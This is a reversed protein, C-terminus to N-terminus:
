PLTRNEYVYATAHRAIRLKPGVFGRRRLERSLYAMMGAHTIVLTDRRARCLRDAVESVRRRFDDRCARQSRHGTLWSFRGKNPEHTAPEVFKSFFDFPAESAYDFRRCCERCAHETSHSFVQIDVQADADRGDFLRRMDSKTM